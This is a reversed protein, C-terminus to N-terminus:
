SVRRCSHNWGLHWRRIGDASGRRHSAHSAAGVDPTSGVDRRRRPPDFRPHAPPAPPAIFTVKSAAPPPPRARDDQAARAQALPRRARQRRRRARQSRRRVVPVPDVLALDTDAPARGRNRARRPAPSRQDVRRHRFRAIRLRVVRPGGGGRLREEPHTGFSPAVGATPRFTPVRPRFTPVRPRFTPVLQCGPVFLRRKGPARVRRAADGYLLDRRSSVGVAVELEDGLPYGAGRTPHGFLSQLVPGGLQESAPRTPCVKTAVAFM